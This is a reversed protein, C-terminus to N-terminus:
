IRDPRRIALIKKEDAVGRFLRIFLSREIPIQSRRVATLRKSRARERCQLALVSCCGQRTKRFEQDEWAPSSAPSLCDRSKRSLWRRPMSNIAFWSRTVLSFRRNAAAISRQLQFHFRGRKRM